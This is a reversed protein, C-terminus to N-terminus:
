LGKKLEFQRRLRYAQSIRGGESTANKVKREREASLELFIPGDTLTAMDASDIRVIGDRVTDIRDIGESFSATDMLIVRIKDGTRVGELSLEMDGSAMMEGPESLLSIPQFEFEEKYVKNNKDTFVITHKGIFEEIPKSVEYYVGSMKSSDVPMSEGDLEVKAPPSMLLTTGAPGAFRYQLQVTIYGSEEEGWIRYDFWIASPDVDKGNGIEENNCSTFFSFFLVTLFLRYM